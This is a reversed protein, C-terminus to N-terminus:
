PLRVRTERRAASKFAGRARVRARPEEALLADVIREAAHGDGYPNGAPRAGRSPAADLVERAAAVIDKRRTGALRALGAEVGEPRETVKRLIVVPVGLSPAEEQLGGSDTLVLRARKLLHALNLYDLPPVLHVNSLGTLAASVAPGVEPNLHVPFIFQMGLPLYHRALDGIAACINQLPEGFNERRHATVLVLPAGPGLAAWPSSEWAFPRAAIELLADVSTNGTVHIHHPACGERLLNERAGPTPAFYLDAALDAVRRNLEEPHPQFKDGSRLGAEVHGFRARHYHAVLSAALVTTTDGQALVWDPRVQDVIDDLQELLAATLRALSQGPRMAALQYDPQLDFLDLVPEILERHQGTLCCLSRVGPERRNLERLIPAMKIAEPRTGLISLLIM